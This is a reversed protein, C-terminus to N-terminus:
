GAPSGAAPVPGKRRVMWKTLEVVPILTLSLGTAVVWDQWRLLRGAILLSLSDGLLRGPWSHFHSSLILKAANKQPVRSANESAPHRKVLWSTLLESPWLRTRKNSSMFSVMIREINSQIMPTGIVSIM